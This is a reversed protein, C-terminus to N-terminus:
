QKDGITYHLHDRDVPSMQGAVYEWKYQIDRKGAAIASRKVSEEWDADMVHLCPLTLRGSRRKQSYEINIESLGADIASLVTQGAAQGPVDEEMGLLIEYRCQEQNPVVKFTRISLNLGSQLRQFLMSLQNVHVKEGTINLFNETKRVFSLVPTRNYFSEVEVIDNIDYRYLGSENTLIVRYQKGAELEHSALVASGPSEVPVFEYYNTPLALIGAPTNDAVPLTICGESALYGLDRKAVSGYFASLKDAQYGASGGLWCGILKLSPWCRYPLLSGHTEVLSELFRARQRNPQLAAALATCAESSTSGSPVMDGTLLRGDAIVRILEEQRETCVKALKLLTAANPTAIFSIDKELALRAMVFYRLDYDATESVKFPLVFSKRIAPSLNKYILGSMSGYPIGAKTYGEVASCTITLNSKDLFSSHDQQARYLWHHNLRTTCKKTRCTVPIYKPKDCTGSTLNFMFPKDSTLVNSEGAAIKSIYPELGKYERIPVSNRFESESTIKAFNHKTGFLTHQNRKLLQKLYEQQSVHPKETLRDFYQRYLTGDFRIYSRLLFNM